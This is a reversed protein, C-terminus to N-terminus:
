VVVFPVSPFPVVRHTQDFPVYGSRVTESFVQKQQQGPQLLDDAGNNETDHGGGADDPLEEM